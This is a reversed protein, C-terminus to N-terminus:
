QSMVAIVKLQKKKGHPFPWDIVQGVRLGILASGVPTLISIKNNEIDSDQPYVLTVVTEKGGELDQFKVTSNMSVVDGPLEEDHVVAARSLEEELLDAMERPAIQLIASIKEYNTRTIIPKETDRM